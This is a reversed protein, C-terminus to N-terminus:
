HSTSKRVPYFKLIAFSALKPLCPLYHSPCCHVILLCTMTLPVWTCVTNNSCTYPKGQSCWTFLSNIACQHIRFYVLRFIFRLTLFLSVIYKAALVIYIVHIPYALVPLDSHMFANIEPFLLVYLLVPWYLMVIRAKTYLLSTTM